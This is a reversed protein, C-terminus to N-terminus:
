CGCLSSESDSLTSILVCFLYFYLCGGLLESTFEPSLSFCSFISPISFPSKLVLFLFLLPQLKIKYILSIYCVQSNEMKEVLGISRDMQISSIHLPVLTSILNPVPTLNTHVLSYARPNKNSIIVGCLNHPSQNKDTVM